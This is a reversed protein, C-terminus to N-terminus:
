VIKYLGWYTLHQFMVMPKYYGDITAIALVQNARLRVIIGVQCTSTVIMDSSNVNRMREMLCGTIPEEQDQHQYDDDSRHQPSDLTVIKFGNRFSRDKFTIQIKGCVRVCYLTLIYPAVTNESHSHVLLLVHAGRTNSVM